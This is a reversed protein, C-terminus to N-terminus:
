ENLYNIYKEENDPNFLILFEIAENMNYKHFIEPLKDSLSEIFKITNKDYGLKTYVKFLENYLESIISKTSEKFVQSKKDNDSSRLMDYYYFYLYRAKRLEVNGIISKIEDKRIKWNANQRAESSIELAKNLYTTGLNNGWTDLEYGIFLFAYYNFIAELGDFKYQNFVLAKNKNYNFNLGKIFYYQDTNNTILLHSKISNVTGSSTQAINISEIILHLKLELEIFDYEYCFKNLLFYEKIDDDLDEILNKKIHYDPDLENYEISVQINVFQSFIFSIFFLPILKNINMM